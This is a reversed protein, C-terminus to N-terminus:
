QLAAFVQLALLRAFASSLDFVADAVLGAAAAQELTHGVALAEIFGAEGDGLAIFGADDPRRLVLLAVRGAGLDVTENSAAPQAAAWIRDIPYTSRIVVAGPAL